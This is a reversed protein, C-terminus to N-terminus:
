SGRAGACNGPIAIAEHLCMSFPHDRHWWPWATLRIASDPSILKRILELSSRQSHLVFHPWEEQLGPERPLFKKQLPFRYCSCLTYRCESFQLNTGAPETSVRQNFFLRPDSDQKRQLSDGQIQARQEAGEDKGVKYGREDGEERSLLCDGGEFPQPLREEPIGKTEKRCRGRTRWLPVDECGTPIM